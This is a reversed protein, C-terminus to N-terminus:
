WTFLGCQYDGDHAADNSHEAGKGNTSNRAYPEEVHREHIEAVEERSLDHQRCTGEEGADHYPPKHRAVNDTVLEGITARDVLRQETDPQDTHAEDHRDADEEDEEM